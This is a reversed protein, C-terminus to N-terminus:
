CVVIMLLVSIHTAISLMNECIQTTATAGTSTYPSIVKALVEKMSVSDSDISTSNALHKMPRKLSTISAKFTQAGSENAVSMRASTHAPVTNFASADLPMQAMSANALFTIPTTVPMSANAININSNDAEAAAIQM